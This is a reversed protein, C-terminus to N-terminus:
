SKVYLAGIGKKAFIRLGVTRRQMSVWDAKYPETGRLFDYHRLGMRLADEFTAGVLVLGVSKNRWEPDYGAQYYHFTDGHVVGYVSAVAQEGVWMTYMRLKGTEGFLATVDRHFSEVKPGSIGASGGDGEWRM